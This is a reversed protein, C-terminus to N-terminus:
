KKQMIEKLIKKHISKFDKDTPKLCSLKVGKILNLNVGSWKTFNADKYPVAYAFGHKLRKIKRQTFVNSESELSTIVCVNATENNNIEYVYVYHGGKIKELKPLDKNLCYCVSGVKLFNNEKVM